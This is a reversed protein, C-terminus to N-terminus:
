AVATPRASRTSSGRKVSTARRAELVELLQDVLEMGRHSRNGVGSASSDASASCPRAM